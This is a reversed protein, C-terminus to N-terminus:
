IVPKREYRSLIKPEELEPPEGPAPRWKEKIDVFDRTVKTAPSMAMYLTVKRYGKGVSFIREVVFVPMDYPTPNKVQRLVSWDAVKDPCRDAPLPIIEAGPVIWAGDEDGATLGYDTWPDKEPM